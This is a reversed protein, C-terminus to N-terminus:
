KEKTESGAGTIEGVTLPTFDNLDEDAKYDVTHAGSESASATDPASEDLEAKKMEEEELRKSELEDQIKLLVDKIYAGIFYFLVMCVAMRTYITKYALKSNYCIIGTIIAALSSTFIPLRKIYYM